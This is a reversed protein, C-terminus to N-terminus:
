AALAVAQIQRSIPILESVRGDAPDPRMIQTAAGEEPLLSREEMDLEQPASAELGDVAEVKGLRALVEPTLKARQEPTTVEGNFTVKNDKDRVELLRKGHEQRLEVAGAEDSFVLVARPLAMISVHSTGAGAPGHVIVDSPEERGLERPLYRLTRELERRGDRGVGAEQLQHFLVNGEGSTSAGGPFRHEFFTMRPRERKTLKVKATQEKGARLYTLAVETGEDYSQVLVSLQHPEILWQDNLRTLLDNKQLVASAPSDAVVHGVVLGMGRKLGLQATMAESVPAVEVGLFTVKEKPIDKDDDGVKIIRVHKEVKAPKAPAPTVDAAPASVPLILAAALAAALSHLSPKM